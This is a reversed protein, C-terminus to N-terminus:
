ELGMEPRYGLVKVKITAVGKNIKAAPLTEDKAYQVNQWDAPLELKKTKADCINWFRFAEKYDGETFDFEKTDLPLPNFHLALNAKGSEPIWFQTDLQIDSETEDTKAGGTIGYRKGDPTKVYSNKDFRIWDGPLYYSTIHMVMETEKLEVKTIKFKTSYAGLFASPNKWVVEKAQGAVAILVLLLASLIRKKMNNNEIM